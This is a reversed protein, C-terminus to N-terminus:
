SRDAGEPEEVDLRCLGDGQLLHALDPHVDAAGPLSDPPPRCPMATARTTQKPAFVRMRPSGM